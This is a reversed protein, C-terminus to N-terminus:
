ISSIGQMFTDNLEAQPVKLINNLLLLKLSIGKKIELGLPWIIIPVTKQTMGRFIYDVNRQYFSSADRTCHLSFIIQYVYVSLMSIFIFFIILFINWSTPLLNQQQETSTCLTMRWQKLQFFTTFNWLIEIMRYKLSIKCTGWNNM